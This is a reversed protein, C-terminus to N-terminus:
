ADFKHVAALRSAAREGSPLTAVEAGDLTGQHGTKRDRQEGPRGRHGQPRGFLPAPPCPPAYGQAGDRHRQQGRVLGNGVLPIWVLATVILIAAHHGFQRKQGVAAHLDTGPRTEGHRRAAEGNARREVALRM